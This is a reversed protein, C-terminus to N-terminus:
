GPSDLKDFSELSSLFSFALLDSRNDTDTSTRYDSSHLWQPYRQPWEDYGSSGHSCMPWSIRLIHQLSFLSIGLHCLSHDKPLWPYINTTEMLTRCFLFSHSWQTGTHHHYNRQLYHRLTRKSCIDNHRIPSHQHASSVTIPLAFLLLLKLSAPLLTRLCLQRNQDLSPRTM